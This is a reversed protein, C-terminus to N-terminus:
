KENRRKFELVADLLKGTTDTMIEISIVEYFGMGNHPFDMKDSISWGVGWRLFFPADARKMMERLLQIKGHDTHFEWSWYTDLKLWKAVERNKEEATMEHIPKM